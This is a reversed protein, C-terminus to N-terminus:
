RGPSTTVRFICRCGGQLHLDDCHDIYLRISDGLAIRRTSDIPLFRSKLTQEQAQRLAHETGFAYKPEQYM